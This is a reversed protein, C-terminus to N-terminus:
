EDASRDGDDGMAETMSEIMEISLRGSDHRTLRLRDGPGLDEYEEMMELKALVRDANYQKLLLIGDSEAEEVYAPLFLTGRDDALWVESEDNGVRLGPLELTHTEGEPVYWTDLLRM